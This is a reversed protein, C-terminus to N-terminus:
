RCHPWPSLATAMWLLLVVTMCASSPPLPPVVRSSLHGPTSIRIGASGGARLPEASLDISSPQVLMGPPASPSAVAYQGFEALPAPRFAHFRDMGLCCFLRSVLCVLRSSRADLLQALEAWLGARRCCRWLIGRVCTQAAAVISHWWLFGCARIPGYLVAARWRLALPLVAVARQARSTILAPGPLRRSVPQGCCGGCGM